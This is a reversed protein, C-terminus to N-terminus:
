DGAFNRKWEACRRAIYIASKGKACGIVEAVAHKPPIEVLTHIHAPM